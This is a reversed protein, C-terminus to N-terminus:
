RRNSPWRLAESPFGPLPGSRLDNKVRDLALDFRGVLSAVELRAESRIKGIEKVIADALAEKQADIAARFRRLHTFREDVSLAAWAPSAARAAEVAEAIRAPSAATECVPRGDHAPDVSVLPEGEPELFAGAVYDGRM